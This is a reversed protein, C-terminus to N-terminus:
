RSSRSRPSHMECPTSRATPRPRAGSSAASGRAAARVANTGSTGESLHGRMAAAWSASAQLRVLWPEPEWMDENTRLSRWLREVEDIARVGDGRDGEALKAANLGGASNGAIAVPAIAAHDYLFRLVGAEFSGLLRRRQDRSRGPTRRPRRAPLELADLAGDNWAAELETPSPAPGPRLAPGDLHREAEAVALDRPTPRDELDDAGALVDARDPLAEGARGSAEPPAAGGVPELGDPDEPPRMATGHVEHNPPLERDHVGLAVVTQPEGDHPM